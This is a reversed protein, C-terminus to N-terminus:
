NPFKNTESGLSSYNTNGSPYTNTFDDHPFILEDMFVQLQNGTDYTDLSQTSDWQAVIDAPIIDYDRHLLRYDEDRFYEKLPTSYNNFSYVMINNSASSQQMYAGYPDRPIVALRANLSMQDSAQTLPWNTVTMIEDIDPPSSIGTVSLDTYPLDTTSMGPWTPHMPM